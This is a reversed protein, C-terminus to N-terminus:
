PECVDVKHQFLSIWEAALCRLIYRRQITRRSWVPTSKPRQFDMGMDCSLMRRSTWVAVTERLSPKSWRLCFSRFVISSYSPTKLSKSGASGKVFLYLKLLLELDFSSRGEKKVKVEKFGLKDLELTEVFMDMVRVPNDASILIVLTTFELQHRSTGNISYWLWINFRVTADM